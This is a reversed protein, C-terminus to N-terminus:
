QLPNNLILSDIQPKLENKVVYVQALKAFDVALRVKINLYTKNADTKVSTVTGALIEKPYIANYSSTVISDGEQVSIDPTMYLIDAEKADLGNWLLTGVRGSPQHKISIPNKTNLVSIGQAFDESVSRIKGVIGLSSIVGMGPAIGDNSGKNILFFNNTMRFNNQVVEAPIYRYQVSDLNDTQILLDDITDSAIPKQTQLLLRLRANEDALEENVRRLEFYDQIDRSTNSLTGIFGSAGNIFATKQYDNNSVLLWLCIVELGLFVLVIRARVLFAILQSM